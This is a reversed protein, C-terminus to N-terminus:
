REEMTWRAAATAVSRPIFRLAFAILKNLPGPIVLRKGAMLGRYGMRAVQSVEIPKVVRMLRTRGTGAREQFGTWTPGPCLVTVSVGTGQLENSLAESLSVVYAKSAFYAAMLPGPQFAATSAVNLIKGAGRSIMDPLLLRTLHTLAAINIQIVDLIAGPETEAFPGYTGIGANNVLVEIEIAQRQLATYIEEPASRTSLDQALTTVSIGYRGGLEQALGTLREADRAVAVLRYGDRAFLVALEYGIGSTAGTILATRRNM